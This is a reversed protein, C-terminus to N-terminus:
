GYAQVAPTRHSCVAKLTQVVDDYFSRPLEQGREAKGALVMDELSLLGILRRKEDIVPLRRLERRRMTELAEVLEDAPGCTYVEPSMVQRVQIASPRQDSATVALCIDRDTIVGLLHRGEDVVPLIGCREEAMIKGAASLTTGPACSRTERTMLDRIKM